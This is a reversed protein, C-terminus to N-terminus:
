PERELSLGRLDFSALEEFGAEAVRSRLAEGLADGSTPSWSSPALLRLRGPQAALPLRLARTVRRAPVSSCRVTGREDQVPGHLQEAPELWGALLPRGDRDELVFLPGSRAAARGRLLKAPGGALRADRLSWRGEDRVLVVLLSLDSEVAHPGQWALRASPMAAVPPALCAGALLGLLLFGFPM